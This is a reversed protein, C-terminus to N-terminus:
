EELSFEFRGGGQNLIMANTDPLFEMKIGAPNFRFKHEEYPELPFASQGTAQAMLQSGNKSITIKLPMAQSSYIGLYKDLEESSIEIPPTFIPLEYDKNFYISLVGILIDNLAMVTGNTIYALGVGDDQFYSANSQFGDIGGNHGFARREYFPLQFLGLGYGDILTTMQDLSERSIVEGQFLLHFFMNLDSPTSVIAGAGMPISMNTETALKWGDLFNYSNGENSKQGIKGGYYTNTLKLGQTIREDFVEAFTKEEIKEIIFSLLVYNTNSYEFKEGPEFVTGNTKFIELLDNESKPSEMWKLYAPDNIFNFLGSRHRLLQEITIKSANPMSPYYKDLTTELPLKGEEALQLIIVSTFTKSISGIRYKTEPGAKVEKEVDAYGIANAYVEKGDKFISISGMSQQNSEIRSFLSDMKAQDFDQANVHIIILAFLPLLISGKLTHDNLDRFM